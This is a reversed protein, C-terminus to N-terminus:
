DAIALVQQVYKLVIESAIDTNAQLQIVIAVMDDTSWAGTAPIKFSVILPIRPLEFHFGYFPPVSRDAYSFAQAYRFTLVVERDIELEMRNIIVGSSFFTPLDSITVKDRGCVQRIIQGIRPLQNPDFDNMNAHTIPREM